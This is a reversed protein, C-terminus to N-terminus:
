EDRCLKRYDAVWSTFDAARGIPRRNVECDIVYDLVDAARELLDMAPLVHREIAGPSLTPETPQDNGVDLTPVHIPPRGANDPINPEDPSLPPETMAPLPAGPLANVQAWAPLPPPSIPQDDHDTTM